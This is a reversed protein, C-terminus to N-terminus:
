IQYSTNETRNDSRDQVINWTCELHDYEAAKPHFKRFTDIRVYMLDGKDLVDSLDLM